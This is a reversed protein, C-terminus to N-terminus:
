RGSSGTPLCVSGTCDPTSPTEPPVSEGVVIRSTQATVEFREQQIGPTGWGMVSLNGGGRPDPQACVWEVFYEQGVPLNEITEGATTGAPVWIQTDSIFARGQEILEDPYQKDRVFPEYMGLFMCVIDQDRTNTFSGTVTNGATSFSATVSTDAAAAPTAMALCVPIAAALAFVATAAKRM